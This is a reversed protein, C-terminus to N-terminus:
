QTKNVDHASISTRGGRESPDFTRHQDENPVLTQGQRDSHPMASKGNMSGSSIPPLM